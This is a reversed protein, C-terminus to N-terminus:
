SMGMEALLQGSSDKTDVKDIVKEIVGNEDIVFTTRLIGDYEKGMFKKRGWVGYARAISTDTDAVLTFPLSYKDVFKAHKKVDDPSVGIIEFGKSILVNSLLQFILWVPMTGDSNLIQPWATGATPLLLKSLIPVKKALEQLM